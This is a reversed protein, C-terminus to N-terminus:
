NGLRKNVDELGTKRQRADKVNNNGFRYTFNCRITQSEWRGQGRMYLGPTFDNVSKWNATGLVDGFSVSATAKGDFLQKKVGVDMAGQAKSRFVAGWIAPANYWGSIQFSWGKLLRLTHEMYANMSTFQEDVSFGPRFEAEFANMYGTVSVYGEWWKAIPIPAGITLSINNQLAINEQTLYTRNGESTDIIETFMDNTRSVGLTTNMMGMFTHTLEISNTFQPRLFPNGKKYALEDLREEFPNLDRYNPRDIRRSYTLNFTNKDNLNYTVAASPFLSLYENSNMQDNDPKESTLDGSWDTYEARLGTQFGWKKVQRNYNVYAANVKENYVFQNSLEINYVPVGDEVNYFEFLNDTLVHTFKYGTAFKGKWLNQEYDIMGITMDIDTPTNNRYINESLVVAETPDMYYNPQYSDARFRYGGRNLDVSLERGTTDAYRYNLNFNFNRRNQPQRNSAVLVSDLQNPDDLSFIETRSHNEVPGQAIRGDVIFGLTNKSNLFFDAGVKGSHNNNNDESKSKQDFIKGSQERYLDITNHWSGFHNNYNGFVNFKENRHNLAFNGGEKLTEGFIAEGGASGNTGVTKNKKTKINIIGGNGSADYKASPNTILEISAIEEARMSKLLNALDRSDMRVERGDVQIRVENKGRMGINDNNDITVGPAKKLLELANQGQSNINDEVNMITKDAKVEIVPKRAVVDVTSLTQSNEQLTLVPVEFEAEGNITVSPVSGNGMGVMGAVLYYSGSQINELLYHGSADTIAGKVLTSDSSQYLMVTAFEVPKGDAQQVTGRLNAAFTPSFYGLLAVCLFFTTKM